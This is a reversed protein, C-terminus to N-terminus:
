GPGAAACCRGGVGACVHAGVSARRHQRGRARGRVRAGADHGAAVAAEDGHAVQLLALLHQGHRDSVGQDDGLVRRGIGASARGGFRQAGPLARVPELRRLKEGAEQGLRARGPLHPERRPQQPEHLPPLPPRSASASCASGAICAAAAAAALSCVDPVQVNIRQRPRM